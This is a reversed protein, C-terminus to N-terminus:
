REQVHCIMGKNTNYFPMSGWEKSITYEMYILDRKLENAVLNKSRFLEFNNYCYRFLNVFISLAIILCTTEISFSLSSEFSSSYQFVYSFFLSIIPAAFLSIFGLNLLSKTEGLSRNCSEELYKISQLNFLNNDRLYREFENFHKKYIKFINSDIKKRKAKTYFFIILFCAVAICAPLLIWPSFDHGIVSWIIVTAITCITYVVLVVYIYWPNKWHLDSIRFYNHKYDNYVKTFM